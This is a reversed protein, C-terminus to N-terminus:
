QEKMAVSFVAIHLLGCAVLLFMIIPEITDGKAILRLFVFCGIWAVDNVFNRYQEYNVPLPVVQVFLAILTYFLTISGTFIPISYFSTIEQTLSPELSISIANIVFYLSTFVFVVFDGVLLSSLIDKRISIPTCKMFRRKHHYWRKHHKELVLWLAIYQLVMFIMSITAKASVGEAVLMFVLFLSYLIMICILSRKMDKVHYGIFNLM